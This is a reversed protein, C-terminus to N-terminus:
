RPIRLRQGPYLIEPDRIQPNARLLAWYSVGVRVAIISLYECPAVIYTYGVRRGWPPPEPCPAFVGPPQRRLPPKGEAEDGEGAEVEEETGEEEEGGGVETDPTGESGEESAGEGPEVEEDDGVVAEDGEGAEVEEETGEEEEGGGVETDPTGESGEESAGEEPEVEEDDGVVAEDGEGAEAEEETGEEEGEEGEGIEADPEAGDGSVVEEDDGVVSESEEGAESEEEEGAAGESVEADPVAEEGEGAEVEEDVELVGEDGQGAESEEEEGAAEEGVEADPEAGDGPEAGEGLEDEESVAAVVTLTQEGSGRAENVSGFLNLPYAQFRYEGPEDIRTELEWDGRSDAEVKGIARGNRYVAVPREPEGSGSLTLPGTEVVGTPLTLTPHPYLIARRIAHLMLLIFPCILFLLVLWKFCGYRRIEAPSVVNETQCPNTM